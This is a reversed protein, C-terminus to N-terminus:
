FLKTKKAFELVKKAVIHKREATFTWLLVKDKRLQDGLHTAEHHKPKMEDRGYANTFANLHAFVATDLGSAFSDADELRRTAQRVLDVVDLLLLLSRLPARMRENHLFTDIAWQRFVPYASFIESAGAKLSTDSAKERAASFAKEPKYCGPSQWGLRGAYQRFDVFYAGAIRKAAKLFLMLELPVIGNSLFVHLADFRHCSSPKFSRRLQLDFLIGAAHYNIGVCKQMEVFDRDAVNRVLYDCDSWM